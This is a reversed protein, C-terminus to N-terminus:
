ALLTSVQSEASLPPGPLVRRADWVSPFPCVPNLIVGVNARGLEEALIHAETAGTITLQIASGTHTEVQSKLLVLTAIIDANHTQVVLPIEGNAVKEFWGGKVPELLLKRLTAIQTSVSTSEGHAIKVHLANVAQIVAGEELKHAAGTSFTTSLGSL